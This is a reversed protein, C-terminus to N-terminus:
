LGFARIHHRPPNSYFPVCHSHEGTWRRARRKLYLSGVITLSARALDLKRITRVAYKGWLAGQAWLVGTSDWFTKWQAPFNGYRTPIGFLFADYTQLIEPTITPIDKSKPPAHMAKLVDEPLTEAIRSCLPILMRIGPSNNRPGSIYIPM